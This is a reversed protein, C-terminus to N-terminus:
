AGSFANKLVRVRELAIAAANEIKYGRGPVTHILKRHPIFDVKRRLNLIHTEITNSFIDAHIDWVHELIQGRSLVIGENKLLYELLEFEKRTLYIDKKGRFVKHKITDLELDDIKLTPHNLSKPRRLIARIHALLEEFYFPKLIFDDAGADLCKIRTMFDTLESMIIVPTHKQKQRLDECLMTGLGDPLKFECIILDFDTTRAQFSANTYNTCVDVSYCAAKLNQQLFTANNTDPEVILIHMPTPKLKLYSKINVMRLFDHLDKIWM